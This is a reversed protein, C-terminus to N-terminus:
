LGGDCRMTGGCSGRRRDVCCLTRCTDHTARVGPSLYTRGLCFCTSSCVGLCHCASKLSFVERSAGGVGVYSGTCRLTGGGRKAGLFLFDARGVTDTLVAPCGGIRKVGVTGRCCRVTGGCRGGRSFTETVCVFSFTVCARGSSLRTGRRTGRFCRVTCSGLGQCLCVLKMRSGVLFNLRCSGAGRVRATTRLCFSLTSRTRRDRRHLVNGCCLTLTGERTGSRGAFCSCTVGM